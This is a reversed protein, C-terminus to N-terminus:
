KARKDKDKIFDRMSLSVVQVNQSRELGLKQGALAEIRSPSKLIALELSLAQKEQELTRAIKEQQNLRYSLELLLFRSRVYLISVLITGLFILTWFGRKNVNEM